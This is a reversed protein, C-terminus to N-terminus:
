NRGYKEHAERIVREMREAGTEVPWPLEGTAAQSGWLTPRVQHCQRLVHALFRRDYRCGRTDYDVYAGDLEQDAAVAEDVRTDLGRYVLLHFYGVHEPSPHLEVLYSPDDEDVAYLMKDASLEPILALFDEDVDLRDSYNTTTKPEATIRLAERLSLNAARQRKAELQPWRQAVLM